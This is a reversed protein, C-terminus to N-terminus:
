ILESGEKRYKRPSSEVCKKFYNSFTYESSFCLIQAIEKITKTTNKLLTKATEIRLNLLYQYPTLHYCRKFERIIQSKSLYLKNCLDNLNFPSKISLTLEYRIRQALPSIHSEDRYRDALKM